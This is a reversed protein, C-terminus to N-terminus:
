KVVKYWPEWAGRCAHRSNRLSYVSTSLLQQWAWVTVSSEILASEANVDLYRLAKPVKVM